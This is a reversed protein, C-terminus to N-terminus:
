AGNQPTLFAECSGDWVTPLAELLQETGVEFLELLLDTAREDGHLPRQVQRLVPGADMALVTFAVTVGTVADGKELCRQV